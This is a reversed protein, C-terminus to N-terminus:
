EPTRRIMRYADEGGQYYGILTELYEYQLKAYLHQAVNNRSGVELITARVGLQKMNEHFVNMLLTGINRQRFDPLVDLTLIHACASSEIYGLIFGLIGNLGEAVSGVIEPHNLLFVFESRAFAIGDAFCIQDITYLSELDEAYIRRIRPALEFM